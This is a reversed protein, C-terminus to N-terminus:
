GCYIDKMKFVESLILCVSFRLVTSFIKHLDIFYRAWMLHIFYQAWINRSSFFFHIFSFSSFIQELILLLMERSMKSCYFHWGRPLTYCSTLFSSSGCRIRVQNMFLVRELNYVYHFEISLQTAKSHCLIVRSFQLFPFCIEIRWIDKLKYKKLLFFYLSFYMQFFSKLFHLVCM